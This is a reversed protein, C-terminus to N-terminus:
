RRKIWRTYPLNIIIGVIQAALITLIADARRLSTAIFIALGLNRAISSIAVSAQIQKAYGTTLLHGIALLLVNFLAITLFPAWGLTLLLKSTVLSILLALVLILVLVQSLKNLIVTLKEVWEAQIQHIAFGIGLPLFQVFAVKRAIVWIDLRVDSADPFGAQFLSLILPTFVITTLALTVQMDLALERSVGAQSIRQTLLPPGPAAMLLALAIPVPKPLDVTLILLALLLPPLIVTAVLTRIMLGSHQWFARLQALSLSM